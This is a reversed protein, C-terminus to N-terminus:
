EAVTRARASRRDNDAARFAISATARSLFKSCGSASTANGSSSQQYGSVRSRDSTSRKLWSGSRPNSIQRTESVGPESQVSDDIRVAVAVSTKRREVDFQMNELPSTTACTPSKSGARPSPVGRIAPSSVSKESRADILRQNTVSLRIQFADRLVEAPVHQNRASIGQATWLQKELEAALQTHANIENQALAEPEPSVQL